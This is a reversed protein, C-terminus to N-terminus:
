EIVPMNPVVFAEVDFVPPAGLGAYAFLESLQLSKYHGYGDCIIIDAPLPVDPVNIMSVRAQTPHNDKRLGAAFGFAEGGWICEDIIPGKGEPFTLLMDLAGVPGNGATNVLRVVVPFPCNMEFEYGVVQRLAEIADLVNVVGTGDVDCASFNTACPSPLDVSYQLITLADKVNVVDDDNADACTDAFVQAGAVSTLSLSILLTLTCIQKKMVNTYRM